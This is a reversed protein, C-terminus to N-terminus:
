ESSFPDVWDKPKPEDWLYDFLRDFWGKARFHESIQRWFEIKQEPTTLVPPTQMVISTARAGSLPQGAAFILGDMFPQNVRDYRDWRLHVKGATVNVAPSVGVHTDLTIRHLLGAKAYLRTLSDIDDDSTYRGYHGRVASNGSFGFTTVLTSTSPLEFDWVELDLALSLRAKGAVLVRVQGSYMGPTTSPPVYVDVWIPQNRGSILKFPFGNRKQNEYRDIRPVLPDPWEGTGGTVSSPRVLNLYRELYVTVYNASPVISTKGRLDTVEVDVDDLDHGDARLVIQFPEFENRAAHIKVAHEAGATEADFPRVKQLSHTVWGTLSPAQAPNFYSLFLPIAALALFSWRTTRM